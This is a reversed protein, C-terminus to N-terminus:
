RGAQLTRVFLGFAIVLYSPGSVLFGLFLSFLETARASAVFEARNQILDGSCMLSLTDISTYISGVYGIIVPLPLFVLYAAIVVPRRTRAVVFCAGVFIALGVLALLLGLFPGVAQCMWPFFSRQPEEGALELSSGAQALLFGTVMSPLEM